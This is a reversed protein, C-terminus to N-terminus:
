RELINGYIYNKQVVYNHVIYWVSGYVYKALELIVIILSNVSISGNLICTFSCM